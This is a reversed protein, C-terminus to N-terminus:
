LILLDLLPSHPPLHQITYSQAVTYFQALTYSHVITYFQAKTYYQAVSQPRYYLCTWCHHNHHSTSSLPNRDIPSATTAVLTWLCLTCTLLIEQCVCVCLCHRFCLYLYLCLCWRGCVCHATSLICTLM